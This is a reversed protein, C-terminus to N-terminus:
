ETPLPFYLNHKNNDIDNIEIAVYLTFEINAKAIIPGIVYKVYKKILMM